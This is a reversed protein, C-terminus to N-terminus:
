GGIDSLLWGADSVPVAEMGGSCDAACPRDFLRIQNSRTRATTATAAIVTARYLLFGGLAVAPEWAGTETNTASKWFLVDSERNSPVSSGISLTASSPALKM